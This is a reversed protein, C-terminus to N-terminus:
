AAGGQSLATDPKGLGAMHQRCRCPPYALAATSRDPGDASEGLRDRPVVLPGGATDWASIPEAPIKRGARTEVQPRVM